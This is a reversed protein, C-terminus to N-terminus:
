LGCFASGVREARGDVHQLTVSTTLGLVPQATAADHVKLAANRLSRDSGGGFRPLTESGSPGPSSHRERM